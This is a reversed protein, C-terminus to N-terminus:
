RLCLVHQKIAKQRKFKMILRAWMGLMNGAIIGKPAISTASHFVTGRNLNSLILIGIPISAPPSMIIDVVYLENQDSVTMSSASDRPNSAM